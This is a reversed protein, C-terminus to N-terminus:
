NDKLKSDIGIKKLEDVLEGSRHMELLIDCGGIFESKFFVQPITPWNSYEKIGSRLDEDALVNHAEFKVGHMNLIDVVAKSFGCMPQASTGKMFVVVDSAKVMKDIRQKVDTSYNAVLLQRIPMSKQSLVRSRMVPRTMCTSLSRILSRSTAIRASCLVSRSLM